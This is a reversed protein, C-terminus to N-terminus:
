SNDLLSQIKQFSSSVQKYGFWVTPYGRIGLAEKASTNKDINTYNYPVGAANLKKKLSQCAGCWPAGYVSIAKSGDRNFHKAYLSKETSTFYKSGFNGALMVAMQSKTGALLKDSGAVVLPVGKSGATNWIKYDESDPKIKDLNIIKFPVRRFKLQERITVCGPCNNKVLLVVTPNGDEDYADAGGFLSFDSNYAFWFIGAFICLYFLNGMFSGKMPKSHKIPKFRARVDWDITIPQQEKPKRWFNFKKKPKYIDTPIQKKKRKFPLFNRLRFKKKKPDEVSIDVVPAKHVRAPELKIEIGATQLLNKLQYAKSHEMEKHMITEKRSEIIKLAETPTISSNIGIKEAAINVDFSKKYKGTIIVKFKNHQM